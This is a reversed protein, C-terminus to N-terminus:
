VDKPDEVSQAHNLIDSVESSSIGDSGSSSGSASGSRIRGDQSGPATGDEGAASASHVLLSNRRNALGTAIRVAGERVSSWGDSEAALHENADDARRQALFLDFAIREKEGELQEMREWLSRRPADVTHAVCVGIFFSVFSMIAGSMLVVRGRSDGTGDDHHLVYVFACKLAFPLGTAVSTRWPMAHLGHALGVMALLPFALMHYLHLAHQLLVTTACGRHSPWWLAVAVGCVCNCALGGLWVLLGLQRARSWDTMCHLMGRLGSGMLTIGLVSAPAVRVATYCPVAQHIVMCCVVVVLMVTIHTRFANNYAIDAYMHAPSPVAVEPTAPM